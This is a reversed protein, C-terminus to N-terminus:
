SGAGTFASDSACLTASVLVPYFAALSTPGRWRGAPPPPQGPSGQPHSPQARVAPKKPPEPQQAMASLPLGTIIAAVSIAVTLLAAKTMHSIGQTPAPLCRGNAVKGRTGGGVSIRDFPHRILRLPWRKDVVPAVTL